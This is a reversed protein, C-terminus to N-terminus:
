KPNKFSVYYTVIPEVIFSIQSNVAGGNFVGGEFAWKLGYHSINANDTNLWGTKQQAAVGGGVNSLFKPIITRTHNRSSLTGKYTNDNLISQITTPVVSDNNDVRSHVMGLTQVYSTGLGPTATAVNNLCKWSYVVKDIRYEEYLGVYSFYQPVDTLEFTDSGYQTM